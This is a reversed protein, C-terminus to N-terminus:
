RAHRDLAEVFRQFSPLVRLEAPDLEALIQFSRRGKAYSKERGCDRTAQELRDLVERCPRTEIAQPPFLANVHLCSGFLRRLVSAGAMIWTEMCAVMLQAQDDEVGVPRHWGDRHQLHDWTARNLPEESDVLLMPFGVGDGVATKFSDYANQRSGCSIIRPMRGTFGSREILKRFGRQCREVLEKSDGGGEVYLRVSV